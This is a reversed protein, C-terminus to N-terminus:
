IPEIESFNVNEYVISLPVALDAISANIEKETYSRHVWVDREWTYAEVLVQNQSVLVYQKLNPLLQYAAWKENRDYDEMSKSLVEFIVSPNTEALQYGKRLLMKSEEVIFLDPYTNLEAAQIWVPHTESYRQAPRKALVDDMRKLINKVLCNHNRSTYPMIATIKNKFFQSRYENRLEREWYDDFSLYLTEDPFAELYALNGRKPLQLYYALPMKQGTKSL